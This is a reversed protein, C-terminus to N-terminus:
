YNGVSLMVLTCGYFTEIGKGSALATLEANEAGPNFIIRKPNLSLIYNYYPKQNKESMYLTVTHVNDFSPMGTFIKEGHIEGEKLGIAVVPIENQKLREVAMNSAREPNASAGLVLTKKM